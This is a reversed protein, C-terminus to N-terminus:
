SYIQICNVHLMTTGEERFIAGDCQFLETEPTM